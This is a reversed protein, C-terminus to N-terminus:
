VARLWEVQLREIAGEKAKAEVEIWPAEQYVSPMATIFDSHQRDTFAEQGNSIHVLQWERCPWTERAAYFMEAVSPDEYSTLQEHCVHHHADFVMPVNTRHCVALIESASYAYEDNEFTLRSKVAEPLEGVVKILQELRQSKGGHINM